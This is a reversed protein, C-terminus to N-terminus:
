LKIVIRPLLLTLDTESSVFYMKSGFLNSPQHMQGFQKSVICLLANSEALQKLWQQLHVSELKTVSCDVILVDPPTNLNAFSHKLQATAITLEVNAVTEGLRLRYALLGSPLTQFESTIM